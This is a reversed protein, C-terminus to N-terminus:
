HNFVSIFECTGHRANCCFIIGGLTSLQCFYERLGKAVFLSHLSCFGEKREENRSYTIVISSKQLWAGPLNLFLFDRHKGQSLICLKWDSQMRVPWSVRPTPSVLVLNSFLIWTFNLTHFLCLLCLFHRYLYPICDWFCATSEAKHSHPLATATKRGRKVAAPQLHHLFFEPSWSSALTGLGKCCLAFPAPWWVIILIAVSAFSLMETDPTIAPTCSWILSLTCSTSLIRHRQCQLILFYMVGHCHSYPISDSSNLCRRPFWHRALICRKTYGMGTACSFTMMNKPFYPYLKSLTRHINQMYLWYILWYIFRSIPSFFFIKSVVALTKGYIGLFVLNICNHLRDAQSDGGERWNSKFKECSIM